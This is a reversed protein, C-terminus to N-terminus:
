GVFDTCNYLNDACVFGLGATLWIYFTKRPDGTVLETFRICIHQMWHDLSAQIMTMDETAAVHLNQHKLCMNLVSSQPFLKSQNGDFEWQIPMSWKNANYGDLPVIKHEERDIGWRELLEAKMERLQQATLISGM